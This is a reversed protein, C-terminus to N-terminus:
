LLPQKLRNRQVLHPATEITMAALDTVVEITEAKVLVVIRHVRHVPKQVVKALVAIRHVHAMVAEIKEAKALVVIHHVRHVLKQVAKVLVKTHHVHPVPKEVKALVAIRHVHAMVAEIKEAKALVAIRHVRHVLKQVAKVLPRSSGAESGGERPGQYPPRPGYSGRNEGGERPGRYPPRSSGAESGGERPGQYPPRPSQFNSSGEAAGGERSAVGRPPRVFPRRAQRPAEVILGGESKNPVKRPRSRRGESDIGGEEVEELMGEELMQEVGPQADLEQQAPAVKREQAKAIGRAVAEELVEMIVNISRAVDDNGPIVIAVGAPDSNTDVLAVVPIGVAVAEKIATAEKKSDIVVLAGIPWSLNRIGGVNNKLRDVIKQFGALEKKTYDMKDSKTSVDEFHLLKTVSKKVQSFNSLTGGVWRKSAYPSHLKEATQQIAGQAAKKTGVFLVQKGESAVEELFRAAKELQFATKSVDILHVGNKKGWIYREMRPNWRWTQHGFQVGAEILKKIDIM